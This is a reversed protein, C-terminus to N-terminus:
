SFAQSHLGRVSASACTGPWVRSAHLLSSVPTHVAKCLLGCGRLPFMLVRHEKVGNLLMQPLHCAPVLVLAGNALSGVQLLKGIFHSFMVVLM